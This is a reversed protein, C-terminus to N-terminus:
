NKYDIKLVKFSSKVAQIIRKAVEIDFIDAAIIHLDDLVVYYLGARDEGISFDHKNM